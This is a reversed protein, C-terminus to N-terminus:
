KNKQNQRHKKARLKRHSVPEEKGKHLVDHRDYPKPKGPDKCEKGFVPHPDQIVPEGRPIFIGRAAERLRESAQSHGRMARLTAEVYAEATKFGLLLVVCSQTLLPKHNFVQLIGEYDQEAVLRRFRKVLRNYHERPKLKYLLSQIHLELATICSFRADIKREVDRKMRHRTHQLAQAELQLSFERVVEKRVRAAVKESTRGCILSMERVVGLDLFINEVEAVEPVMVGKSRLYEVEPGSRRDRDVIGRSEMRHMEKFSAFTRTSEIVKDCSGVPRVAYEPFLASYMRYDISHLADGEIFLVPRRSGLLEISLDDTAFDADTVKKYDWAEPRVRYSRVWWATADSRTSGFLTDDTDYVMRCDPRLQLLFDWLRPGITPHMFLTPSDVFVTAGEPATAIGYIFSLVAKEGRGLRASTFTDPGSPSTFVPEGEKVKLTSGKFLGNWFTAARQITEPTAVAAFQRGLAQLAPELGMGGPEGTPSLLVKPGPCLEHMKRFFRSAGSGNGGIVLCERGLQLYRRADGNAPDDIHPPLPLRHM